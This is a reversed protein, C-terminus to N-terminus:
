LLEIRSLEKGLEKLGLLIRRTQRESPNKHGSVYQALLSNNMGIRDSLAKVNIVKYFGFFQSISLNFRLNSETVQRESEEFLFNLAEVVNSRLDQLDSGTTGIAYNPAFASYGDKTKEVTVDIKKM